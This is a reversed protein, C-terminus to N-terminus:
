LCSKILRHDLGPATFSNANHFPMTKPNVSVPVVDPTRETNSVVFASNSSSRSANSSSTPLSTESSGVGAGVVSMVAAGVVDVGGTMDACEGKGAGGPMNACEGEGAM